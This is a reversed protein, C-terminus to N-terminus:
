FLIAVGRSKPTGHSLILEGRTRNHWENEIETTSHTEQLFSIGKDSHHKILWHFM